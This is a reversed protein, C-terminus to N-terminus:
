LLRQRDDQRSSRSGVPYHSDATMVQRRSMLSGRGHSDSSGRGNSHARTFQHGRVAKVTPSFATGVLDDQVAEVM